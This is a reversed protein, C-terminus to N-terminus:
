ALRDRLDHMEDQNLAMGLNIPILTTTKEDENLRFLDARPLYAEGLLGEAKSILDSIRMGPRLEYTGPRRVKGELQVINLVGDLIPLVQVGDGDYLPPNPRPHKSFDLDRLVRKQNPEVSEIQIKKAFGTPRLGGAMAILRSFDESPMLEYIGPRKVEGEVTILRGVPGIFVTDGDMLPIDQSSDGEMLFKYLDVSVTTEGNRLLHIDRLAGDENPGGSLYLANFLTTVTSAAYSGPRFAWGKIFIQITRLEELMAILKLDTFQKRSLANRAAREFQDLTMGRVVFRGVQPLLVNGQQDVVIEHQELPIQDSWFILTLRDGPRLIRNHPVIANVNGKMMDIPGVFGSIADKISPPPIDRDELDTLTTELSLIRNRAGEFYDYGFRKLRADVPELPIEDEPRAEGPEEVETVDAPEMEEPIESPLATEASEEAMSRESEQVRRSTESPAPEDDQPAVSPQPSTPQKEEEEQSTSQRSSSPSSYKQPFVPSTLLSLFVILMVTQLIGKGFFDRRMTIANDGKSFNKLTLDQRM